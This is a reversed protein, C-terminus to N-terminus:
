SFEMDMRKLHDQISKVKMNQGRFMLSLNKGNWIQILRWESQITALKPSLGNSTKAQLSFYEERKDQSGIKASYLISKLM